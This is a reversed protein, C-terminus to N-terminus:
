GSVRDLHALWFDFSARAQAELMADGPVVDRRLHQALKTRSGYNADIVLDAARLQAVLGEPLTVDPPLTSLVIEPPNANPWPKAEFRRCAADRRRADRGWVFTYADNDHLEALIARATAGYGLIGIRKLAVPEDLLAEIATRAGIGDTNTGLSKPGFFITNVAEARRAEDTLAECARMAEEKLPYTVNCGIFGDSRLRLIATTGGGRAVRIAVYSGDIEAEDLFARHLRPSGSHEVPDGILALKM